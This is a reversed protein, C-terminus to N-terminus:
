RQRLAKYLEELTTQGRLVKDLGDERITSMGIDKLGEAYEETEELLALRVIGHDIEVVEQIPLRGKFGSEACTKCGVPLWIKQPTKSINLEKEIYNKMKDELPRDMEKKCKDCIRRSLKQFIVLKLLESIKTESIGWDHLRKIAEPISSGLM